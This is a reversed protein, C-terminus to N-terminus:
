DAEIEFSEISWDLNYTDINEVIETTDIDPEIDGEAIERRSARGSVPVSVTGSFNVEVYGSYDQELDPIGLAEAIRDYESCFGAGSAIRHAKEWIHLVRPDEPHINEAGEVSAKLEAKDAEAKDARQQALDASAKWAEVQRRLHTVETWAQGQETGLIEDLRDQRRTVEAQWRELQAQIQERYSQRLEDKSAEANALEQRIAEDRREAEAKLREIENELEEIIGANNYDDTNSM